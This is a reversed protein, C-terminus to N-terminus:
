QANQELTYGSAHASHRVEPLRIEDEDVAQGEYM